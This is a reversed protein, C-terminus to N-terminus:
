NTIKLFCNMIKKKCRQNRCLILLPGKTKEEKSWTEIKSVVEKSLYKFICTKNIYTGEDKAQYYGEFTYTRIDTPTNKKLLHNKAKRRREKARTGNIFVKELMNYKELDSTDFDM